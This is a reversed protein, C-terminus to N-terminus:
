GWGVEEAVDWGCLSRNVESTEVLVSPRTEKIDGGGGGCRGGGWRRQRMGGVYHGMWRQRRWWCLLGQRRSIAGGGGVGVGVGGGRGWGVWMIVWEGRVDGGACFAKDGAGKILVMCIYVGGGGGWGAEVGWMTVREGRVDGGACFAKDGAGKILVMSMDDEGEWAQFM